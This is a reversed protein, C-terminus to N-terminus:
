NAFLRWFIRVSRRWRSIMGTQAPKAMVEVDMTAVRYGANVLQPVLFRYEARVDGLSPVCVVLPGEGAVDYAIQGNKHNFHKTSM